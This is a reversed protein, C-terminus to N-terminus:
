GSAPDSRMAWARVSPQESAPESPQASASTRRDILPSALEQYLACQRTQAKTNANLGVGLVAVGVGAGVGAGVGDGVGLHSPRDAAM